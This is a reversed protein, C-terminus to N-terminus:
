PHRLVRRVARQQPDDPEWDAPLAPLSDIRRRSETISSADPKLSRRAAPGVALRPSVWTKLLRRLACLAPGLLDKGELIYCPLEARHAIRYWDESRARLREGEQRLLREAEPDYVVRGTFVGYGWQRVGECFTCCLDAHHRLADDVTACEMGEGNQCRAMQADLGAIFDQVDVLDFTTM